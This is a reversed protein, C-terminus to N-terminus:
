ESASAEDERRWFQEEPEAESVTGSQSMFAWSGHSKERAPAEDPTEPGAIEELPVPEFHLRFTEGDPGLTVLAEAGDPGPRVILDSVKMGRRSMYTRVRKFTSRADDPSPSGAAPSGAASLRPRVLRLLANVDGRSIFEISSGSSAAVTVSGQAGALFAEGLPIFDTEFDFAAEGDDAVVITAKRAHMIETVTVLDAPLDASVDLLVRALAGAFAARDAVSRIVVGELHYLFAGQRGLRLSIKARAEPSLGAGAGASLALRAGRKFSLSNSPAAKTAAEAGAAGALSGVAVFRHDQIVGFDGVEVPSVPLWNAYLGGSLPHLNKQIRRTVSM